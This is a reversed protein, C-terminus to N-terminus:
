RLDDLRDEWGRRLVTPLDGDLARELMQLQEASLSVEPFARHVEQAFAQGRAALRPAEALYAAVYPAVLEAQEPDFLGACVARLMRNSVQDDEVVQAWVAAKAEPTPVAARATAAGLEGEITGDREREADIAGLDLGGLSALRHVATWRLAPDLELGTDSAGAALWRRLEDADHTTAALGRTLEIRVQEDETAAAGLRCTQALLELADGADSPPLRQVVVARTRRVVATVISVEREDPLHRSVLTLFDRAPLERSRVMGFTTTWLVARVMPDEIASLGRVVSEWSQEDLVLRAFTEGHSNPVVVLGAWDDLRM